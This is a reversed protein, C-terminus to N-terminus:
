DFMEKRMQEITKRNEELQESTPMVKRATPHWLFKSILEEMKAIAKLSNEKIDKPLKVFESEIYDKVRSMDDIYEKPTKCIYHIYWTSIYYAYQHCAKIIDEYTNEDTSGIYVAHEVKKPYM